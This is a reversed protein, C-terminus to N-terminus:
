ELLPGRNGVSRYKAHFTSMPSHTHAADTQNTCYGVSENPAPQHTGTGSRKLIEDAIDAGYQEALQNTYNEMIVAM